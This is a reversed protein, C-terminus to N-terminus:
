EQLPLAARTTLSCGYAAGPQREGRLWRVVRRDVGQEGLEAWHLMAESTALSRKYRDAGALFDYRALGRAAADEIAARHCTLGPKQHRRAGPYDFGSQYASVVGRWEFNYLLGVAGSSSALRLLAIEGRPLGRRILEQHFRAFFSEAFAGPRGRRRWTAQHLTALEDLYALAEDQSGARRQVLEGYARGSRRLQYRANASLAPLYDRRDRRLAELDVFPAKVGRHVILPLGTRQVADLAAPGVGNLIIRRSTRRLRGSLSACCAARLCEALVSAPTDRVALLGNWEIFVSDQSALGSEGLLLRERGLWDRRRNFLGLVIRHGDRFAELLIPDSFRKEALCGTWTWSQFFSCDSQAELARWNEGLSVWDTVRTLTIETM